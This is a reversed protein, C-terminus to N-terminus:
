HGSTIDHESEHPVEKQKPKSKKESGFLIVKRRECDEISCTSNAIGDLRSQLRAISIQLQAREREGETKLDYFMKTLHDVKERLEDRDRKYHDREARMADMKRDADDLYENSHDIMKKYLEQMDKAADVEATIAEAKARRSMWKWTFFTGGGGGVFLGLIGIIAELTIEM